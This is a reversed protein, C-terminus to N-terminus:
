AAENEEIQREIEEKHSQYYAWANALDDPTLTPYWQLLEADTAGLRRYQVMSWVPIRTRAICAVGGSVESHTEIGDQKLLM